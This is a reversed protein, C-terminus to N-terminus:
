SRITFTPVALDAETEQFVVEVPAGVRIEAPDSDVLNTLLRPGEDLQVMALRLPLTAEPWGPVSEMESHSYITGTGAAATISVDDYFCDPCHGRPYHFLFGCAGCEGLPLEGEATASWYDETEPTVDPLPRPEWTM